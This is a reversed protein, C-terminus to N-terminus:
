DDERSRDYEYDPDPENFTKYSEEIRSENDKKWLEIVDSLTMTKYKTLYNLIADSEDAIFTSIDEDTFDDYSEYYDDYGDNPDAIEGVHILDNTTMGPPYNNM